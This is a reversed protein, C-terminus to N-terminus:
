CLGALALTSFEDAGADATVGLLRLVENVPAREEVHVPGFLREGNQWAYAAHYGAGDAHEAEVYAVPGRASAAHALRVVAPTLRQFEISVPETAGGLEALLEDSIPLLALGFRLPVPRASGLGAEAVAAAVTAARAIIAHIGYFPYESV